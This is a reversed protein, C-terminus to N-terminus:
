ALKLEKRIREKLDGLLGPQNIATSVISRPRRLKQALDTVTMDLDLLRIKVQRRFSPAQERPQRTTVRTM